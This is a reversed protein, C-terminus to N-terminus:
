STPGGGGACTGFISGFVGTGPNLNYITPANDLLIYQYTVVPSSGNVDYYVIDGSTPRVGAGDHYLQFEGQACVTVTSNAIVAYFPTLRVVAFGETGSGVVYRLPSVGLGSEFTKHIELILNVM